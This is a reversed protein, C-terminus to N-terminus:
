TRHSLVNYARSLSYIEEYTSLDMNEGRQLLELIISGLAKENQIGTDRWRRKKVPMKECGIQMTILLRDSTLFIIFYLLQLKKLIFM